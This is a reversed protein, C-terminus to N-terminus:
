QLMAPQSAPMPSFSCLCTSGLICYATYQPQAAPAFSQLSANGQALKLGVKRTHLLDNLDTLVSALAALAEPTNLDDCLAASAAELAESGPGTGAQLPM